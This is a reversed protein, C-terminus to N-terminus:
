DNMGEYRKLLWKEGCHRCIRYGDRRTDTRECGCRWCANNNLAEWGCGPFTCKVSCPEHILMQHGCRPCTDLDYEPFDELDMNLPSRNNEM